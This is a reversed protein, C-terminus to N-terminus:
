QIAYGSKVANGNIVKSEPYEPQFSECLNIKLMVVYIENEVYSKLEYKGPYLLQLRKEINIIEPTSNDPEKYELAVGSILKMLLTENEISIVLNIWPQEAQNGCHKFSNEIFPLLLLPAIQKNKMEGKIVTELELRSGHRAKELAMYDIM